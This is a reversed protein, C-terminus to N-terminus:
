INEIKLMHKVTDIQGQVAPNVEKTLSQYTRKFGLAVLTARQRPSRKARGKVLTIKVKAM